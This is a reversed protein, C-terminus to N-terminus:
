RWRSARGPRDCLRYREVYQIGFEDRVVGYIGDQRLTHIELGAPVAVAGLHRGDRGFLEWFVQRDDPRKPRQAWLRGGDDFRLDVYAPWTRPYGDYRDLAERVLRAYQRIRADAREASELNRERFERRDAATVPAASRDLRIRAEPEGLGPRRPDIRYLGIEFREADGYAVRGDPAVVGVWPFRGFAQRLTVCQRGVFVSVRSTVPASHVDDLRAGDPSLLTLYWRNQREPNPPYSCGM